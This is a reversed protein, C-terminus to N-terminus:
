AVITVYIVNNGLNKVTFLPLLSTTVLQKSSSQQRNPQTISPYVGSRQLIGHGEFLYNYCHHM